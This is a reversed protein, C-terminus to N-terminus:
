QDPAHLGRAALSLLLQQRQAESLSPNDEITSVVESLIRQVERRVAAADSWSDRWRPSRTLLWQAARDEGQAAKARIFSLLQQEGRLSGRQIAEFLETNSSDGTGNRAANRWDYFTQECIGLGAAISKLPLGESALQEALAIHKPTIKIKVAM